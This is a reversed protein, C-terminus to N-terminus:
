VEGEGSDAKMANAQDTAVIASCGWPYRLQSPCRWAEAVPWIYEAAGTVLTLLGCVLSALEPTSLTREGDVVVM